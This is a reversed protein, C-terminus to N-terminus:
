LIGEKVFSMAGDLSKCIVFLRNLQTTALVKEVDGQAGCIVFIGDNQESLREARILASLAMSSLFALEALDLILKNKGAKILDELESGLRAVESMDASGSLRVVAVGQETRTRIGLGDM